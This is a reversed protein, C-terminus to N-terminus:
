SVRIRDNSFPEVWICHRWSKEPLQEREIAAKYSEVAMDMYAAAKARLKFANIVKDTNQVLVKEADEVSNVALGLENFKKKNDELWQTREGISKLTKWQGQLSKYSAILKASGDQVTKNFDEQLRRSRELEADMKEQEQKAKKTGIAFASLAGVVTILATALLVYPNAEAVVNFAKQAVTALATGRAQMQAAKAAAARQVAEIGIMVAGQKSVTASVQQLGITIAMLSQTKAMIENLNESKTGLLGMVGNFAAMIGTAASMGSAVAQFGTGPGSLLNLEKELLGMNKRLEIAKSQLDAYAQSDKQGNAALEMMEQNVQRLQTSYSLHAKNNREVAIEMADLAEKESEIEHRITTAKKQLSDRASGKPMSKIRSELKAYEKELGSIYQKQDKIDQKTIDTMLDFATGMAEVTKTTDTIEKKMTNAAQKIQGIDMTPEFHLGGNGTAM